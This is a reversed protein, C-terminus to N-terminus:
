QLIESLPTVRVSPGWEPHVHTSALQNLEIQGSKWAEYAGPGMMARQTEAPQREFWDAGSTAALPKLGKIVPQMFCRDNPHVEMLEDTAHMTGDLVICAMCTNSNLACRRIYGEVVGSEIMQERSATRYARLQESRAVTLARNLNGAMVNAMRRATERPNIGKATSEILTQTLQAATKAYDRMLLRDLPTGDGAFGIMAEVAEVPLVDFFAGVRGAERYTAGITDRAANIGEQVAAGQGEAIRQAAWRSYRQTEAKAQALLRRYREMRRVRDPTVANGAARMEAAEQALLAMGAELRREVELWRLTMERMLAADRRLLRARYAEIVLEVQSTEPM